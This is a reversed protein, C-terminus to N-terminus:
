RGHLRRGTCQLQVVTHHAHAHGTRRLHFSVELEGSTWLSAPMEGSLQNGNVYLKKLKTLASLDVLPGSLAKRAVILQTVYLGHRRM